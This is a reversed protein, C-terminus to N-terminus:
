TIEQTYEKKNIINIENKRHIAVMEEKTQTSYDVRVGGKKRESTVTMAHFPKLAQM